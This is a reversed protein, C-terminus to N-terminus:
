DLGGMIILVHVLTVVADFIFELMTTGRFIDKKFTHRNGKMGSNVFGLIDLCFM